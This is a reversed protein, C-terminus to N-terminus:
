ILNGFGTDTYKPPHMISMCIIMNMQTIIFGIIIYM